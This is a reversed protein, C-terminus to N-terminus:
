KVIEEGKQHTFFDSTIISQRRDDLEICEYVFGELNKAVPELVNNACIGQDTMTTNMHGNRSIVASRVITNNDVLDKGDKMVIIKKETPIIYGFEDSEQSLLDIQLKTVAENLAETGNEINNGEIEISNGKEVVSSAASIQHAQYVGNHVIPVYAANSNALGLIVGAAMVIKGLLGTRKSKRKSIVGVDQYVPIPKDKLRDAYEQIIKDRNAIEQTVYDLTESITQNVTEYNAIRRRRCYESNYKESFENQKKELKRLTLSDCNELVAAANKARNEISWNKRINVGYTERLYVASKGTHIDSLLSKTTGFDIEGSSVRDELSIM